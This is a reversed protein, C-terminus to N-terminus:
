KFIYFGKGEVAEVGLKQFAELHTTIPRLGIRDGGPRSVRLENFRALLPGILLVSTRALSFKEFNLKNPDVNKAKIKVKREEIFEVECGMEKLIDLFNLVDQVLPLNSILCEEKTLLCAALIPATSNKSGRAEIEGALVKGGEIIFREEIEKVVEEIKIKNEM